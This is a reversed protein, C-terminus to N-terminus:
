IGEIAAARFPHIPLEPGRESISLQHEKSMSSPRFCFIVHRKPRRALRMAEASHCREPAISFHSAASPVFGDSTRTSCLGPMM